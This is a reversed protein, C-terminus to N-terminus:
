IRQDGCITMASKAAIAEPPENALVRAELGNRTVGYPDTYIAFAEYISPMRAALVRRQAETRCDTWQRWFRMALKIATDECRRFPRENDAWEVALQWRWDLARM